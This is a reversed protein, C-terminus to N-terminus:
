AADLLDFFALQRADSVSVLGLFRLFADSCYRIRGTAEHLVVYPMPLGAILKRYERRADGLMNAVGRTAPSDDAHSDNMVRDSLLFNRTLRDSATSSPHALARRVAAILRDRDLPKVLYDVVAGAGRAYDNIRTNATVIVFPPKRELTNALAIIDHGGFYPMSLDLLVLSFAKETLLPVVERSDACTRLNNFGSSLLAISISTLAHEEDDVILIPHVPNPIVESAM